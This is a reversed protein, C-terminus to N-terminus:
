GALQNAALIIGVDALVHSLVPVILGRCRRASRQWVVSAAAIVVVGVILWAPQLLTYLVIAHYGAFALHSLAGRAHLRSWHVQELIPHVVGFYPIMAIMAAGALGHSQLWEELPARTIHPLLFFLAVGTLAAPAAILAFDRSRWGRAVERIDRRSWLLIQAHYALIALWANHALAWFVIVAVYPAAYRLAYSTRQRNM